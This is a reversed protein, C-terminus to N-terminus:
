ALLLWRAIPIARVYPPDIRNAQLAAAVRRDLQDPDVAVMRPLECHTPCHAELRIARGDPTDRHMRFTSPGDDDQTARLQLQVEVIHSSAGARTEVRTQITGTPGDFTAVLTGPDPRSAEAPKWGLQGALWALFWVAKRPIRGETETEALVSVSEIMRTAPEASGDFLQALIERWPTIGYWPLDRVVLPAEPDLAEAISEVDPSPDPLDLIVRTVDDALAERLNSSGKLDDCWWLIAHLDPILLPRVAGPLLEEAGRGAHLVIRESCVQPRGPAPLHCVASVEATLENDPAGPRLVLVRSPYQTTIADITEGVRQRDAQMAGVVVNALVVRTVSPQEVEPGGAQEAAPGWLAELENEIQPLGVEIGQGDLFAETRQQEAITRDATPM